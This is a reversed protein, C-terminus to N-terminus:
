RRVMKAYLITFNEEKILGYIVQHAYQKGIEIFGHLVIKGTKDKLPTVRVNKTFVDICM